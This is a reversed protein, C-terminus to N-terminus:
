IGFSSLSSSRKPTDSCAAPRWVMRGSEDMWHILDPSHEVSVQTARLSEALAKRKSIDRCFSCQYTEKGFSEFTISVEVPMLEGSKTRHKTEIVVSGLEQFQKWRSEYQEEAVERSHGPTVPDIDFITMDLLEERSYGLNRCTSESVEVVHGARDIWLPYDGIHDLSFRTRALEAESRKRQAIDRAFTIGYTRDEIQVNSFSIEVPHERGEKDRLVTEKLGWSGAPTKQWDEHFQQPTLSPDVDWVRMGELEERTYGLLRINAENVYIFRGEADVWQILDPAWDVTTQTARLSEEVRKRESIDDFVALFHDSGLDTLRLDFWRASRRARQEVREPRGTAVVRACSALVEPARENIGPSIETLRKGVVDSLGLLDVFARNVDVFVWDCAAGRDDYVLRCIASAGILGPFVAAHIDPVAAPPQVEPRRSAGSDNPEGRGQGASFAM